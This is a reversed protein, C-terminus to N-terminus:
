MSPDPLSMMRPVSGKSSITPCEDDYVRNPFNEGCRVADGGPPAFAHGSGFRRGDKLGRRPRSGLVIIASVTGLGNFGDAAADFPGRSGLPGHSSLLVCSAFLRLASLRSGAAAIPGALLQAANTDSCLCGSM